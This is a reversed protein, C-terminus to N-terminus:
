KSYEEGMVALHLKEYGDESGVNEYVIGKYTVSLNECGAFDYPTVEKIGDPLILSTLAPCERIQPAKELGSGLVVETLAPCDSINYVTKITDPFVIKEISDCYSIGGLLVVKDHFRINKLKKCGGIKPYETISEPMTYEVIGTNYFVDDNVIDLKTCEAININELNECNKFVERGLYSLNKSLVVTKLSVYGYFAESDINTVTDPIVVKEVYKANPDYSNSGGFTEIKLVEKGEIVSPIVVETLPNEELNKFGTITIGGREERFYFCEAPAANENNENQNAEQKEEKKTDEANVNEKAVNKGNSDKEGGCASVITMLLVFMIVMSIKKMNQEREKKNEIHIKKNWVQDTM